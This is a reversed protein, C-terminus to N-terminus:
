EKDAEAAPKAERLRMEVARAHAEFGEARAFQATDPSLRELAARGFSMVSTKKIFDDV